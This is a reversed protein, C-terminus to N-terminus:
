RYRFPINSVHLRKPQNPDGSYGSMSSTVPDTNFLNSPSSGRLSTFDFNFARERDEGASFPPTLDIRPSGLAYSSLSGVASDGDRMMRSSTSSVSDSSRSNFSRPVFIKFPLDREPKNDVPNKMNEMVATSNLQKVNSTLKSNALKVVKKKFSATPFPWESKEKIIYNRILPASLPASM